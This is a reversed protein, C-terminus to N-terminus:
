AGGGHASVHAGTEHSMNLPPDIVPAFVYPHPLVQKEKWAQLLALGKENFKLRGSGISNVMQKAQFWNRLRYIVARTLTTGDGEWNNVGLTEGEDLVRCTLETLQQDSCPVSYNEIAVNGGGHDKVISVPVENQNQKVSAQSKVLEPKLPILDPEHVAQAPVASRPKAEDKPRAALAFLGVGLLFVGLAGLVFLRVVFDTEGHEEYIKADTMAKSQTPAEKVATLQGAELAQDIPVQTNVISQQTATLPVSTLAATATWQNAQATWQNAEATWALQQQIRDKEQATAQTDLRRAEDATAQAVIATGQWDVTPSPTITITATAAPTVSRQVEPTGLAAAQVALPSGCGTLVLATLLFIMKRMTMVKKLSGFSRLHVQGLWFVHRDRKDMAFLLRLYYRLENFNMLNMLKYLLTRTIMMLHLLHVEIFQIKPAASANTKNLIASVVGLLWFILGFKGVFCISEGHRLIRENLNMLNM